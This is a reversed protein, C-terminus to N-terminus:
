KSGLHYSSPLSVLTRALADSTPFRAEHESKPFYAIQPLPTWLPRVLLGRKVLYKCARRADVGEVNVRITNLWYNSRTGSAEEILRWDQSDFVASYMEHLTRKRDIISDLQSLQDLLLAANLAPLRYNYGLRDHLFEFDHPVKAVLSLHRIEEAISENKTFVAGGSGATIIKNGNFSTISVDALSLISQGDLETGLAGAGDLVLPLGATAAISGLEVLKPSLGFVSTVVIAKVSGDSAKKTHPERLESLRSRLSGPSMGLDDQDVDVFVPVAGLYMVANATAVFSVASCLVFDGRGVGLAALALHLASTGSSTVVCNKSQALKMLRQEVERILGLDVSVSSSQLARIVRSNTDTEIRPVHLPHAGEGTVRRIRRELESLARSTTM